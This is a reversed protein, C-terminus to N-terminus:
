QSHRGLKQRYKDIVREAANLWQQGNASRPGTSHLGRRNIFFVDGTKICRGETWERCYFEFDEGCDIEENFLISEALSTRVFHGIQLSLFPPVSLIEHFSETGGLQGIRLQFRDHGYSMECIM